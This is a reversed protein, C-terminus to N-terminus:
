TWRSRACLSRQSRRRGNRDAVLRDMWLYCLPGATVRLSETTTLLSGYHVATVRLSGYHGTTVRLSAYHGTTVRLSGYHGTSVRLSGYHGTTVRLSGYHGTTVRLSGDHGTTVRLAYHGNCSCLVTTFLAAFQLIVCFCCKM